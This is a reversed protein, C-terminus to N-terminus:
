ISLLLLDTSPDFTYMGKLCSSADSTGSGGYLYLLGDVVNLTHGERPSPVTGTMEVQKWEPPESALDICFMDGYCQMNEGGAVGGFVYARTGVSAM